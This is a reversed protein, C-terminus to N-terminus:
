SLPNGDWLETRLTLEGAMFMSYRVDKTMDVLASRVRNTNHLDTILNRIKVEPVKARDMAIQMLDAITLKNGDLKRNM